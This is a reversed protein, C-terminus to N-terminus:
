EPFGMQSCFQRLCPFGTRRCGIRGDRRAYLTYNAGTNDQISALYYVTIPGCTLPTTGDDIVPTQFNKPAPIDVALQNLSMAYAGNDRYYDEQAEWLARLIRVGEQSRIKSMQIRYSPIALAALAGIIIVVVFLEAITFGSKIKM